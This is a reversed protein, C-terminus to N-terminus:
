SDFGGPPAEIDYGLATAWFRTLVAPEACDITLQFSRM